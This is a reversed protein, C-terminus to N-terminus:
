RESKISNKRSSQDQSEIYRLSYASDNEGDSTCLHKETQINKSKEEM